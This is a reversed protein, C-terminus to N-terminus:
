YKNLQHIFTQSKAVTHVTAQVLSRQGHSKRPLLVPPPQWKRRWSIKGVWPDFGGRKCRRCQCASEKGVSGNLFGTNVVSLTNFLLSMMKSVSTWVTLAIPRGSTMYPLSLQVMFFASCQLVLAKSDHLLSKIGKSQLSIM